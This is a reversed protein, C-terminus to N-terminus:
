LGGCFQWFASWCGTTMSWRRHGLHIMVPEPLVGGNREASFPRGGATPSIVGGSGKLDFKSVLPIHSWTHWMSVAHNRPVTGRLYPFVRIFRAVSAGVAFVYKAFLHLHHFPRESPIKTFPSRIIASSRTNSRRAERTSLPGSIKSSSRLSTAAMPPAKGEFGCGECLGIHDVLTHVWACEATKKALSM